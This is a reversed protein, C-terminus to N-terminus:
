RHMGLYLKIKNVLFEPTAPKIVYDDVGLNFAKTIDAVEDKVSLIVVIAKNLSSEQKIKSCVDFGSIDPLMLDVIILDPKMELAKKIGEKGSAVVGVELGQNALVDKAIAADTPNDEIILVKKSM